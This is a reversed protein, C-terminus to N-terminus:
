ESIEENEDDEDEENETSIGMYIMGEFLTARDETNILKAVEVLFDIDLVCLWDFIMQLMSVSPGFTLAKELEPNVNLDIKDLYDEKNESAIYEKLMQMLKDYGYFEAHIRMSYILNEAADEFDGENEVDENVLNNNQIM